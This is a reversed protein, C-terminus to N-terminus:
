SLHFRFLRGRGSFCCCGGPTTARLTSGSRYLLGLHASAPRAGVGLGAVQLLEVVLSQWEALRQGVAAWGCEAIWTPYLLPCNNALLM